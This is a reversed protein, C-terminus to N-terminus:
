LRSVSAITDRKPTTVRKHLAVGVAPNPSVLVFVGSKELISFDQTPATTTHYYFRAPPRQIARRKHYTRSAKTNSIKESGVSGHRLCLGCM